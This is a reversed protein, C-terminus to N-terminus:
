AYGNDRLNIKKAGRNFASFPSRKQEPRKNSPRCITIKGGNALYQEIAKTM